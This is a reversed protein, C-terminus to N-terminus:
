KNAAGDDILIRVHEDRWQNWETYAEQTPDEEVEFMEGSPIERVRYDDLSYSHVMHARSLDAFFEYIAALAEDHTDFSEAMGTDESAPGGADVSWNNVWGDCVTWELVEFKSHKM